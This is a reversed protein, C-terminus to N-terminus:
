VAWRTWHALIGTRMTLVTRRAQAPESAYAAQLFWLLREPDPKINGEGATTSSGIAGRRM